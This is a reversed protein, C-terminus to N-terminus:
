RASRARRPSRRCRGTTCGADRHGSRARPAPRRRVRRHPRRSASPRRPRRCRPRGAAEAVAQPRRVEVAAPVDGRGCTRDPRGAGRGAHEAEIGLAGRRRDRDGSSLRGPVGLLEARHGLRELHTARRRGAHLRRQQGLLPEGTRHFRKAPRRPIAARIAASTSQVGISSRPERQSTSCLASLGYLQPITLWGTISAPLCSRASPM